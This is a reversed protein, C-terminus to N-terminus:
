PKGRYDQLAKVPDGNTVGVMTEGVRYFAYVDDGQVSAVCMIGELDITEGHASGGLLLVKGDAKVSGLVAENM